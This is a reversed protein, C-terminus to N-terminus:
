QRGAWAVCYDAVRWTGQYDKDQWGSQWKPAIVAANLIDAADTRLSGLTNTSNLVLDRVFHAAAQTAMGSIGAIWFLHYKPNIPNYTLLVLAFHKEYSSHEIMPPFLRENGGDRIRIRLPENARQIFGAPTVINAAYAYVNVAPSGIIVINRNAALDECDVWEDIGASIDPSSQLAAFIEIIGVADSTAAV